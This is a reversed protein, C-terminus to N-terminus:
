SDLVAKYGGLGEGLKDNNAERLRAAAEDYLFPLFAYRRGRTVPSVQHLLSCSFIVAGGVPPKFGRPGYEPFSVEGGEFEENLNISVAFRRHATGATTNDRHARFHGGDEAAYCAVLYREMRTATFQHIKLLEPNIRRKVRRQTEAILAEDEIIHDRRRKHAHDHLAVTKGDVDRMFGSEVGGHSEYLAVLRRCFDPEFVRPLVIVPAQLDMGAFRAPPPLNQLLTFLTDLDSGDAAFPIVALVRLTPDLVMWFRHLPLGAAGHPPAAEMDVPLAGYLRGVKGDFDWLYRFGPYRDAVRGATEDQPDTSIGFFAAWADDFLDQRQHIRALAAASRQEAASGYFGLVLYRGGVTDFVYRPNAFSRQHFWPAPDGPELKVYRPM